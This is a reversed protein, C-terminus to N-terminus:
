AALELHGGGVFLAVGCELADLEPGEMVDARDASVDDVSGSPEGFRAANEGEGDACILFDRLKEGGMDFSQCFSSSEGRLKM